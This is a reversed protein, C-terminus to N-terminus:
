LAPAGNVIEVAEVGTGLITRVHGDHDLRRLRSNNLDLVLLRGEFDFALDIPWYLVVNEPLAGEGGFGWDGTGMITCVQNPDTCTPEAPGSSDDGGCGPLIFFLLFSLWAAHVLRNLLPNRM